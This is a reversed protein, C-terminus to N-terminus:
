WYHLAAEKMMDLDLTLTSPKGVCKGPHGAQGQLQAPDPSCAPQKLNEKKVGCVPVDHMRHPQYSQGGQVGDAEHVISRHFPEVLSLM